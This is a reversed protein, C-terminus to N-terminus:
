VKVFTQIFIIYINLLITYISWIHCDIENNNREYSFLVIPDLSFGTKKVPFLSLAM